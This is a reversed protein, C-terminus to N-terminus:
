VGGQPIRYVVSVRFGHNQVWQNLYGLEHDTNTTTMRFLTQTSTFEFRISFSITAAHNDYIDRFSIQFVGEIVGGIHSTLRAMYDNVLLEYDTRTADFTFPALQVTMEAVGSNNRMLALAPSDFYAMEIIQERYFSPAGYNRSEATFIQVINVLAFIGLVIFLPCFVFKWKGSM